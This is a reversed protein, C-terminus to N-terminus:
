AQCEDGQLALPARKLLSAKLAKKQTMTLSLWLQTYAPDDELVVQRLIQDVIDTTLTGGAGVVADWCAHALRQM